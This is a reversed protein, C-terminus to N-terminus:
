LKNTPHQITGSHPTGSKFHAGAVSVALIDTIVGAVKVIGASGGNSGEDRVAPLVVAGRHVIPNLLM